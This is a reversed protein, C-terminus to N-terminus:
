NTVTITERIQKRRAEEKHRLIMVRNYVAPNVYGIAELIIDIERQMQEVKQVLEEM